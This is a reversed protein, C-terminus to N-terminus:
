KSSSNVCKQEYHGYFSDKWQKCATISSMRCRCIRRIRNQCRFPYSFLRWGDDFSSRLHLQRLFL